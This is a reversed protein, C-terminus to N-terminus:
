EGAAAMRDYADLLERGRDVMVDRLRGHTFVYRHNGRLESVLNRVAVDATVADAAADYERSGLMADIDDDLTVSPGLEAPRAATSSELHRTLMGAPFMISVVIGEPALELRLAEGYGVIAYKTAAYAGVRVGPTLVGSSATLLIHRGGDSARMLPLFSSVTNITGMVNVSLVWHWDDDSLRDLAGFQQVGVNACLLDCRGLTTRTLEAAAELSRRDAVDVRSGVARGGRATVADATSQARDGDIDLAVVSMQEAALVDAMAAGLGSGAGTIVAVRDAFDQMM